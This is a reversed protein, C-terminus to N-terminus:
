EIKAKKIYDLNPFATTLYANGRATIEGQDPSEGYSPISTRCWDDMGEVVM